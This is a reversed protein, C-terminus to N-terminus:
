VIIKALNLINVLKLGRKSAFISPAYGGCSKGTSCPCPPTGRCHIFVGTELLKERNIPVLKKQSFKNTAQEVHPILTEIMDLTTSNRLHM